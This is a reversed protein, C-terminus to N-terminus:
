PFGLNKGRRQMQVFAARVKEILQGETVVSGQVVIQVNVGGTPLPANGASRSLPVIAEPGAEGALLMTPRRVIGGAAAVVMGRDGTSRKPAAEDVALKGGRGQIIKGAGGAALHVNVNVDKDKIGDLSANVRDRFTNFKDAAAKLKDGIGPVWGFASAAGNVIAGVITFWTNLWLRFIPKLVGDWMWKAAAAIGRFAGDVIKRFTESKQYAIIIGAVLAAVAIVVLGIPNLSLVINLAAQTATYAKAAANIAWVVAVFGGVAAILPVIVKQNKDVWTAFESLKTIVKVAVPLLKAGLEASIDNLRAKLIKQQNALGGSTRAFDGQAVKTDKMIVSYAAQAKQAATLPPVNGQTAKALAENAKVLADNAVKAELSNKGHKKQQESLKKTAVAVKNNAATIAPANKVPKAIGLAFAEAEIRAQSLNVGFRKLPEAEGLLGAKIAELAEPASANNFSGLDTALQVASTSMQASAKQTLGLAVFLNGFTGAAELVEGKSQGLKTAATAAFDDIVKASKGFVTDVKSQSENVDSAASIAHKGFAILAVGAVAAGAKAANGLGAFKKGTKDVNGGVTGLTKSAKDRALIDMTLAVNSM